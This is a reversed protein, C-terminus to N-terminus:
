HSLKGNLPQFCDDLSKDLLEGFSHQTRSGVFDFTFICFLCLPVSVLQRVTMM